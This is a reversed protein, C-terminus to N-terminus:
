MYTLMPVRQGTQINKKGNEARWAENAMGHYGLLCQCNKSNHSVRIGKVNKEDSM